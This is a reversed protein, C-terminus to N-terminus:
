TVFHTAGQRRRAREADLAAVFERVDEDTTRFGFFGNFYTLYARAFEHRITAVFDAAEQESV